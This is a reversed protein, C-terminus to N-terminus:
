KERRCSVTPKLLAYGRQSVRGVDRDEPVLREIASYLVGKLAGALSRYTLDIWMPVARSFDDPHSTVSPLTLLPQEWGHLLIYTALDLANKSKIVLLRFSFLYRTKHQGIIFSTDSTDNVKGYLETHGRLDRDLAPPM